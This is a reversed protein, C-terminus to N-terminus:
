RMLEYFQAVFVGADRNIVTLLENFIDVAQPVEFSSLPMLMSMVVTMRQLDLGMVPLPPPQDADADADTPMVPPSLAIFQQSQYNAHLLAIGMQAIQSEDGTFVDAVLLVQDGEPTVIFRFTREDLQCRFENPAEPGPREFRLGARTLLDTFVDHAGPLSGARVPDLAATASRGTFRSNLTM